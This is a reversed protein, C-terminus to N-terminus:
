VGALEISTISCLAMSASACRVVANSECMASRLSSSLSCISVAVPSGAKGAIAAM